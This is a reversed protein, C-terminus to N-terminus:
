DCDDFWYSLFEREKRDRERERASNRIANVCYKILLCFMISKMTYSNNKRVEIIKKKKFGM